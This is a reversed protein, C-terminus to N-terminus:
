GEERPLVLIELGQSPDLYQEAAARVDDATLSQLLAKGSLFRDIRDSETQARDVLRMWGRNTDLANDYAELVPQRARLIVDDDVPEERLRKITAIIADRAADVDRVAIAASIAMTGYGPYTSSQSAGVNPSYTQGLEERLTDILELDLVRGLLRLVQSARQDSDDRTPWLLQLQAQDAEGDHYIIRQSRDATFHRERNHDYDRFSAERQPLAGLTSAVAAIAEDEDFDGVLALEMAGNAWRDSIDERLQAFTRALYDEEPPLTFRPDNDSIIGGSSNGYASGPTAFRRAYFDRVSRQFQPEASSRFGADAIAAAMLRLQLELDGKTTRNSLRFTEDASSVKFAVDKGALISQLEDLTHAGLGGTPLSSALATALPNDVTNLMDGGDINLQVHVRNEEIKNSKLNLMLGNAFRIERIDLRPDLEDSVIAGPEGFNDYAFETRAAEEPPAIAMAMGDQWADRLAAEGGEPAEAGSFRILPDDLVTVDALMASHVSDATIDPKVVLFRELTSRPTSPITGDNLLALSAGIFSGNSRTAASADASTVQQEIQAIQEAVETESFGYALARRYEEQAAALGRQWEGKGTAIQLNTVRAFEYVDSTGFGAGRFPPDDLRALSQLRRNVIAYGIRQLLAERRNVTTDPKDIWTQNRSISVTESLAPDLFIDTEGVRKADVPGLSITELRPEGQWDGFREIIAAEVAEADYDGVVILAVNEPRYYRSWLDRMAAGTAGQITEATGIPLRAALRSEPFLFQFNDEAARLQYTDRVRRESEIVGKEREVAEEDFTLESATERMLMLATSLLAMDNRPLNLKYITQDFGTSANTDAGFALGERELLKIMEGEPVNTSGNFAMHEIFHAWGRENDAEAGSGFDVWLQVMGQEPPTSNPRIIYRMGNPLVGFHYDPDVPIDSAAFPWPDAAPAAQASQAAIEHALSPTALSLCLAVAVLSGSIFRSKM